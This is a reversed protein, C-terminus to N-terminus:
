QKTASIAVIICKGKFPSYSALAMEENNYDFPKRGNDNLREHAFSLEKKMAKIMLKDTTAGIGKEMFKVELLYDNM